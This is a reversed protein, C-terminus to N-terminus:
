MTRFLLSYQLSIGRGRATARRGMGSTGWTVNQRAHAGPSHDGGQTCAPSHTLEATHVGAGRVTGVVFVSVVFRKMREQEPMM